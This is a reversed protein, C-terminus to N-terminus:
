NTRFSALLQVPGAAKRGNLVVFDTLGNKDYDLAIVFDGSGKSTHPVRVSTYRKGRKRSVLLRDRLNKNSNGRVVYIDARGDGSADGAAVAWADSIGTEYIKRYGKSTWKSVRLRRPSLQILDLRDDGTVDAFAVSIDGMPKIGFGVTRDRLKGGENRMLRLGARRGAAVYKTCYALDEDGDADIDEVVVCDGGHTADLGVGTAAVFTGGQNRYFRNYGPLGDNREPANLVFAEPFDDDDLDIFAVARGRGTPDSIGLSDRALIGKGKHPALSLEHRKINKCRAGGVACLVDVQGDGDVDAGDCGHRDLQTFAHRPVYRFGEPGNMALRPLKGHASFFIDVWGDGDFDKAFGDYTQTFAGLGSPGAMNRIRFGKAAAPAAFREKVDAGGSAVSVGVEAGGATVSHLPDGEQAQRRARLNGIKIRRGQSAVGVGPEKCTQMVMMSAGIRGVAFAGADTVSVDMVESRLDAPVGLVSVTWNGDKFHAMFGRPERNENATQTGGIWLQGGQGIAVSRPIASFDGAWPLTVRSWESGNWRELIATHRSTGRPVLYGVAVGGHGSRFDVDTLVANGAPLTAGSNTKWTGKTRKAILPRPRGPRSEKWGVAWVAGNPSRDVGLLGAGGGSRPEKRIWAKGNWQVAYTKLKGRFLQTGVAWAKGGRGSTVDTLTARLGRLAPRRRDRWSTGVIRGTLPELSGQEQLALPRVYGVVLVKRSGTTIGGGIGRRGVRQTAARKWKSGTWKLALVRESAGGLIWAPKGKRSVADFPTSEFAKSPVPMEQWGAACPGLASPIAAQVPVPTAGLLDGGLLVTGLMVGVLASRPRFLRVWM